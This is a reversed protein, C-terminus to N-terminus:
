EGELLLDFDNSEMVIATLGQRSMTEHWEGKEWLVVQGPKVNVQEAEAGRVTGEGETVLLIQPVKAQHYGVVGGAELHFFSVQMPSNSRALPSMLFNSNFETIRKGSGKKLNFVKM